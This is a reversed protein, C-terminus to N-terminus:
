RISKMEHIGSQVGVVSKVPVFGDIRNLRILCALRVDAGSTIRSDLGSDPMENNNRFASGVQTAVPMPPAPELLLTALM